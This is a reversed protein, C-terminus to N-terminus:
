KIFKVVSPVKHLLFGATDTRQSQSIERLMIDELDMWTLAGTIKLLLINFWHFYHTSGFTLEPKDM